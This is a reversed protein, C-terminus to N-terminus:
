PSALVMSRDHSLELYCEIDGSPDCTTTGAEAVEPPRITNSPM